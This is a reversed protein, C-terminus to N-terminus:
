IFNTSKDAGDFYATSTSNADDMKIVDGTSGAGEFKSVYPQIGGDGFRKVGFTYYADDFHAREVVNTEENGLKIRDFESIKKNFPAGISTKVYVLTPELSHSINFSFM